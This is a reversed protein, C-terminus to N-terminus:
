VTLFLSWLLAQKGTNHIRLPKVASGSGINQHSFIKFLGIKLILFQLKNTGLSKHLVDSSCSFGEARLFLVDLVEFKFNRLKKRNKHIIKARRYGSGCEPDLRDFDTRIRIWGVFILASESGASLFWHPDPELRGFDIRIRIWGALDIHIRIWLM